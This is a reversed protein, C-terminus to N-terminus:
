IHHLQSSLRQINLKNSHFGHNLITLYSFQHLVFSHTTSDADVTLSPYKTLMPPNTEANHGVSHSQKPM